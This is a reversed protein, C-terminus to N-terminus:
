DRMIAIEKKTINGAKDTLKIVFVNKGKELDVSIIKTENAPTDINNDIKHKQTGNIDLELYGFRDKMTIELEASGSIADINKVEVGLEPKTADVRVTTGYADEFSRGSQSIIKIKLVHMEDSLDLEKTFKYAPGKYVITGVWNELEVHEVYEIDAEQGDVLLKDLYKVDYAYGEIRVESTSFMAIGDDPFTVIRTPSFYKGNFEKELYDIKELMKQILEEGEIKADPNTEKIDDVLKKAQLVQTEDDIRIDDLAPLAKITDEAETIKPNKTNKEDLYYQVQGERIDKSVTFIDDDVRLTNVVGDEWITPQGYVESTNIFEGGMWILIPDFIAEKGKSVEIGGFENGSVDIKGGLMVSSGNILLAADGGTLKIDNIRSAGVNYVQIVYNGQWGDTDGTFTITHNLGAIGVPRNIVITESTEINETIHIFRVKEDDLAAKFEKLSKVEALTETDTYDVFLTEKYIGNWVIELTQHCGGEEAEFYYLLPDDKSYTINEYVKDEIGFEKITLSITGNDAVADAPKPINLGIWKAKGEPNEVGPDEVEPIESYPGKISVINNVQDYSYELGEWGTPEVMSPENVREIEIPYTPTPVYWGGVVWTVKASYSRGDIVFTVETEVNADLATSLTVKHTTDDSLVVDLTKSDIVSVSKVKLAKVVADELDKAAARSVAKEGGLVIFETKDAKKGALLDKTAADAVDNILVIPSNTKAALVSGSLADAFQLGTAVYVKEYKIDDFANLVARNTAYRNAGGLRVAGKISDLVTNSVVADGGVVYSKTLNLDKLYDEVAKPLDNKRTLLIPMGRYAAIPSISLADAFSEDSGNVVAVEVFPKGLRKALAEAVEVSTEYRGAGGIREVGAFEKIAKEVSETVAKDGGVIIVKNIGLEKLNEIVKSNNTTTAEGSEVLLLPADFSKALPAASLADAPNAGTTIVATDAKKWGAKVIELATEYRDAGDYRTAAFAASSFVTMTLVMALTLYLTFLKKSKKSM